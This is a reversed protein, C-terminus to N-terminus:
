FIPRLSPLLDFFALRRARKAENGWLMQAPRGCVSQVWNPGQTYITYHPASTSPILAHCCSPMFPSLLCCLVRQGMAEELLLSRAAFATGRRWGWLGLVGNRDPGLSYFLRSSYFFIPPKEMGLLECNRRAKGKEMYEKGKGGNGARQQCHSHLM